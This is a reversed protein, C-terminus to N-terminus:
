HDLLVLLPVFYFTSRVYDMYTSRRYEDALCLGFCRCCYIPICFHLTSSSKGTVGSLMDNVKQTSQATRARAVMQDKKSKSELIKRELMQMGEYLKDIAAAQQDIQTQLTQSEEAATQRRLLAEKALVDNGRELALQARRYWDASVADAQEKQKLLRRQTATVEAYSQRIKVLDGQYISATERSINNKTQISIRFSV